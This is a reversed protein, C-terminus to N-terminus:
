TKITSAKTQKELNESNQVQMNARSRVRALRSSVIYGLSTEFKFGIKAVTELQGERSCSLISFCLFYLVYIHFSGPICNISTIRCEPLQFSNRTQPLRPRYVLVINGFNPNPSPAFLLEHLSFISLFCDQLQRIHTHTHIMYLNHIYM